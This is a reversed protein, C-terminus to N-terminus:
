AEDAPRITFRAGDYAIVISGCALEGAARVLDILALAQDTTFGHRYVLMTEAVGAKPTTFAPALVRLAPAPSTM